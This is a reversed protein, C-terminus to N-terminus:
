LEKLFNKLVDIYEKLHYSPRGYISKYSDNFEKEFKEIQYELIPKIYEKPIWRQHQFMPLNKYKLIDYVKPYKMIDVINDFGLKEIAAEISDEDNKYGISRVDIDLVKSEKFLKDIILYAEMSNEFLQVFITEDIKHKRYDFSLHLMYDCNYKDDEILRSSTSRSYEINKRAGKIFSSSYSCRVSQEVVHIKDDKIVFDVIRIASIYNSISNRDFQKSAMCLGEYTEKLRALENQQKLTSEKQKAQRLENELQQVTKEM